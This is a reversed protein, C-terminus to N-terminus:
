RVFFGLIILVLSVAFCIMSTTAVWNPINQPDRRFNAAIGQTFLVCVAVAIGFPALPHGWNSWVAGAAVLLILCGM